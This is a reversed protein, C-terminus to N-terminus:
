INQQSHGSTKIKTKQKENFRSYLGYPPIALRYNNTDVLICWCFRISPYSSIPTFYNVTDIVHCAKLFSM